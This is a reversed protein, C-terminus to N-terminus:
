TSQNATGWALIFRTKKQIKGVPYATDSISKLLFIKVRYYDSYSSVFQFMNSFGINGDESNETVAFLELIM